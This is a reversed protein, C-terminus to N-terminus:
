DSVKAESVQFGRPRMFIQLHKWELHEIHLEGLCIFKWSFLYKLVELLRWVPRRELLSISILLKEM